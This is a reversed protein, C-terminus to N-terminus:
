FTPALGDQCTCCSALVLNIGRKIKRTSIMEMWFQVPHIAEQPQYKSKKEEQIGFEDIFSRVIVPQTILLHNGREQKDIKCGVYEKLDGINDFDFYSNMVAHYKSVESKRGMLLCNGVWSIWIVLGNKTDKVYLCPDASSRIFGMNKFAQLLEKQFALAAKKLGYITQKLQQV